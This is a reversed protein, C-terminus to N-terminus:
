LLMGLTTKPKGQLASYPYLIYIHTGKFLKQHSYFFEASFSKRRAFINQCISIFLLLHTNHLVWGYFAMNQFVLGHGLDSIVFVINM